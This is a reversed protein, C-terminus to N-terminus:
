SGTGGLGIIGIKQEKLRDAIYTVESRSSNTDEYCFPSEEEHTEIVKFTKATMSDDLSVAPASIIEVYRSIKEYYNNYFGGSPKNSFSHDVLIETTLRKATPYSQHQIPKILDGHKNCPHDGQFYIVHNDPKVTKEGALTLTSVLVGRVAEAKDNVYPVGKVLLYGSNIEIEYGDNILRRLDPSHNILESLM